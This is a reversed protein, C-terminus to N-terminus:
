SPTRETTAKWSPIFLPTPKLVKRQGAGLGEGADLYPTRPPRTEESKKRATNLTAEGLAQEAAVARAERAAAKALVAAQEKQEAQTALHGFVVSVLLLLGYIVPDPLQFGVGVSAVGGGAALCWGIQALTKRV